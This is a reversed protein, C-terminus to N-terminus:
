DQNFYEQVTTEDVSIPEVSYKAVREDNIVGSWNMGFAFDYTNGDSDVHCEMDRPVDEYQAEVTEMNAPMQMPLLGSPEVQGAVIELLVEDGLGSSRGGSWSMLIADVESEFENFVMPKAADICVVVKDCRAAADLVLDLDAENTIIATQGYYSRNEKEVVVEPGYVGEVEREIIDGGISELRVYMNDATYPRYQLSIPRYTYEEPNDNAKTNGNYAYMADPNTEVYEKTPNGDQPSAIRVLAFDCSAIEEDTARIIDDETFMPNGSEDKGSPAGAKDTVVNFYKMATQVDVCPAWSSTTINGFEETAPTFKWPIYVTLKEEGAPAIINDTNKVMVISKRLAELGADDYETINTVALSEELSLYPNDVIGVNFLTQLIHRTSDVMIQDMEEQGYKEVGINYAEMALDVDDQLARGLAGFADVGAVLMQLLREATSLDEVGYPKDYHTNFDNLIYGDWNNMKRWVENLKWENFSTAVRDGGISDGNADVAVSFNTMAAATEETLGPLDLTALYPLLHTWQNGGPYVNYAGDPTHAERGAEAAGEGWLHKVQTNVSDKGWGLDNGEEDYTSQWANIMARTMDMALQPDEGFTADIRNWRPETALDIQPGVKMSIGLARWEKSLTEGYQAALEPDFTAALGLNGPWKTVGNGGLPDAIYTAPIVVANATSSEIYKQINNNWGVVTEAPGNPFRIHRYGADLSQTTKEQLEEPDATGISFPNMKMGMMFETTLLGSDVLAQAREAYGVRWDEFTDLEGDRDLDKFAYGDAEIIQLGSDKSYGLTAGGENVIKTWGDPMDEETWLKSEAAAFGSMMSLALLLALVVSTIKKM